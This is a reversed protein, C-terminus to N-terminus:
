CSCHFSVHTESSPLLVCFRKTTECSFTAVRGWCPLLWTFSYHMRLKLTITSINKPATHNKVIDLQYNFNLYTCSYNMAFSFPECVFFFHCFDHVWSNLFHEGRESIQKMCHYTDLLVNRFSVSLRKKPPPIEIHRTKVLKDGEQAM